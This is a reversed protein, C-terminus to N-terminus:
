SCALELGLQVYVSTRLTRIYMRYGCMREYDYGDSLNALICFMFMVRCVHPSKRIFMYIELTPQVTKNKKDIERRLNGDNVM